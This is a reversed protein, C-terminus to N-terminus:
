VLERTQWVAPQEELAKDHAELWSRGRMAEGHEHDIKIAELLDVVAESMVDSVVDQPLEARTEDGGRSARARDCTQAAVFKPKHEGREDIEACCGFHRLTHALDQALRKLELAHTKSDVGADPNRECGVVARSGLAHQLLSIHCHEGGFVRM